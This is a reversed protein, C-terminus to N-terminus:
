LRSRASKRGLWVLGGGVACLIWWGGAIALFYGRWHGSNIYFRLDRPSVVWRGDFQELPILYREYTQRDLFLYVSYSGCREWLEVFAMGPSAQFRAPRALGQLEVLLESDGRRLAREMAKVAASASSYRGLYPEAFYAPDFRAPEMAQLALVILGLAAFPLVLAALAWRVWRWAKV